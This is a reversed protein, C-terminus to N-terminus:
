PAGGPRPIRETERGDSEELYTGAACLNERSTSGLTIARERPARGCHKCARSSIKCSAGVVQHLTIQPSLWSSRAPGAPSSRARGRNSSGHRLPGSAGAHEVVRRGSRSGGCLTWRVTRWRGAGKRVFVRDAYIDLSYNFGALPAPHRGRRASAAGSGVAEPASGPAPAAGDVPSRRGRGFTGVRVPVRVNVDVQSRVRCGFRDHVWQFAFGQAVELVVHEEGQRIPREVAVREP